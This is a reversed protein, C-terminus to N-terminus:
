RVRTLHPPDLSCKHLVTAVIRRTADSRRQLQSCLPKSPPHCIYEKVFCNASSQVRRSTAPRTGAAAALAAAVGAAQGTLWCQPIERLFTHSSADCAVHRGAGLINDLREPVLAGYPVSINPFKPALSTSVGIENGWVRGIDWQQRTM